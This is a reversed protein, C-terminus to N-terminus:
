QEKGKEIRSNLGRHLSSRFIDLRGSAQTGPDQGYPSQHEDLRRRMV